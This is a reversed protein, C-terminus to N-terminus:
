SPPRPSPPATIRRTRLNQVTCSLGPAAAFRTDITVLEASLSEALAVYAADYPWVNHRLQWTHPLLPAHAFRRLRMRGLLELVRTAEDEHIKKDRVLGRLSSPCELDIAYPVAIREGDVAERVKEALHDSGM